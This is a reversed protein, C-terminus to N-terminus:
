SSGAYVINPAVPDVALAFVDGSIVASARAWDQGANATKFVGLGAVSSSAVRRDTPDAALAIIRTAVLDAGAPTWGEAADASKFTGDFETGAWVVSPASRS